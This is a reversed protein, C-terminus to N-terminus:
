KETHEDSIDRLVNANFKYLKQTTILLFDIKLHLERRNLEYDCCMHIYVVFSFMLEHFIITTLYIRSGTLKIVAYCYKFLM